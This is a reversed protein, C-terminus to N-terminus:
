VRIVLTEVYVTIRFYIILTNQFTKIFTQLIHVQLHHLLHLLLQQLYTFYIWTWLLVILENQYKYHILVLYTDDDSSFGGTCNHGSSIDMLKEEICGMIVEVLLLVVKVYYRYKIIYLHLLNVLYQESAKYDM